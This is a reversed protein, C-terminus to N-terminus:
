IRPLTLPLHRPEWRPCDKCVATDELTQAERDRLCAWPKDEADLWYPYPLRM